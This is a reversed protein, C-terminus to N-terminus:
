GRADRADTVAATFARAVVAGCVKRRYAATGHLDTPVDVPDAAALRGVEDAPAGAIAAAEASPARVPTSAMGILAIACRTV